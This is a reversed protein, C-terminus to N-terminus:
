AEIDVEAQELQPKLAQSKVAVTVKVSNTPQIFENVKEALFEKYERSRKKREREAKKNEEM